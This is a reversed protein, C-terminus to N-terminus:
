KKRVRRRRRKPKSFIWRYKKLRKLYRREANIKKFKVNYKKRLVILSAKAMGSSPIGRREMEKELNEAEEEHQNNLEEFETEKLEIDRDIEFGKFKRNEIYLYVNLMLSFIAVIYPIIDM